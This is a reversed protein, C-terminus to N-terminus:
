INKIKKSKIFIEIYKSTLSYKEISDNDVECCISIIDDKFLLNNKQFYFAYKYNM